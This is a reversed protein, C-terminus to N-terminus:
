YCKHYQYGCGIAEIKIVRNIIFFGAIDINHKRILEVSRKIKDCTIDKKMVGLIRDSGSEIGLSILYLGTQKMLELIEDDLTDIRVGNPVAWSIDLNLEKLAKLFNKAFPRDM